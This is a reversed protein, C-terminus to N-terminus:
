GPRQQQAFDRGRIAALSIVGSVLAIVAAVLLIRNLGTTFAARTIMGVAPRAQEPLRAIVNRIEGSQVAAAIQPGSRSLGPVAAVRALVEDKVNNSFLTGLLAIGTAIGVQRFTSNIGSAMGARQPPVVGVATSALPPNVVGVGVGGVIMGPILHTWASGADLGRMLLLGAGIVILGPGILLRVPVRSTLRGAVTSTVLIGGSIVMLRVGTALPSYGLIDQLYLVLYLLMAFISASLGFAAVAGGSFTPLKFLKMDFMPQASRLEVLVFVALLVAAVALCGLVLGDTFSRQNSEILGYVLSSLAVTFLSFGLWDPRSAQTARSEAVKALAIIVAAIGIPANVFFIWRWSIGSTLVGGLLPGIAVALGTVAGWVGFAVGRDKGRFSDALLALSVAFMIAGGVGQMARSLQLMVTSVAFGCLVSAFTFVALGVLYLLRRGFMDALSGATLLFAALTLAYADVIWQLDSFSSNLARQIDPLAVNVITIDLLLMFTGLCVAVLTWWKNGRQGTDEGLSEAAFARSPEPVPARSPSTASKKMMEQSPAAIVSRDRRRGQGSIFDPGGGRV